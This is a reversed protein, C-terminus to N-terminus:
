LIKTPRLTRDFVLGNVFFDGAVRLPSRHEGPEGTAGWFGISGLFVISGFGISEL